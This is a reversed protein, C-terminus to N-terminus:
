KSPRMWTASWLNRHWRWRRLHSSINMAKRFSSHMRRTKRHRACSKRLAKSQRCCNKRATWTSPWEKTRLLFPFSKAWIRNDEWTDWRPIYPRSPARALRWQTREIRPAIFWTTVTQFWMNSLALRKRLSEWRLKLLISSFTRPDLLCKLRAQAGKRLM